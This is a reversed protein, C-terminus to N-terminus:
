AARARLAELDRVVISRRGTQIWGLERLTQLAHAVGARSAGTWAALEEQSIPLAIAVGADSATGYRESLEVIRAALRGITDSVTAQSLRATTDRLRRTVLELLAVAVRPTTELFARFTTAPIVVAEVEDLATVSATRPGGDIFALEGVLDGPDQIGILIERGDQSLTSLKVRGSLLVMVREGPEHEFMLLAGRPFARRVGLRCVADREAQDLLAFFKDSAPGVTSALSAM